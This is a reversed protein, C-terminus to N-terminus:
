IWSEWWLWQVYASHIPVSGCLSVGDLRPYAVTEGLKMSFFFTLCFSFVSSHIEFSLIVATILVSSVVRFGPSSSKM